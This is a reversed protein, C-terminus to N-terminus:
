STAGDKWSVCIRWGFATYKPKITQQDSHLDSEHGIISDFLLEDM